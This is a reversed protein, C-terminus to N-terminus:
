SCSCPARACVFTTEVKGHSQRSQKRVVLRPSGLEDIFSDTASSGTQGVEWWKKQPSAEGPEAETGGVIQQSALIDAIEDQRFPDENEEEDTAVGDGVYRESDTDYEAVPLQPQAEQMALLIQM